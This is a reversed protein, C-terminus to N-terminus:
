SNQETVQAPYNFLWKERATQEYTSMAQIPFALSNGIDRLIVQMLANRVTERMTSMLGKLWKEVKPSYQLCEKIM